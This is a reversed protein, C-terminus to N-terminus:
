SRETQPGSRNGGYSATVGETASAGDQCVEMRHDDYFLVGHVRWLHTRYLDKPRFTKGTLKSRRRRENKITSGATKASTKVTDRVIEKEVM